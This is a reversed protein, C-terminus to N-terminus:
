KKAMNQYTRRIYFGLQEGNRHYYNKWGFDKELWIKYKNFITADTKTRSEKSLM